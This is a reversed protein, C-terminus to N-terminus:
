SPFGINKGVYTYPKAYLFAWIFFLGSMSYPTKPCPPTSVAFVWGASEERTTEKSLRRPLREFPFSFPIKPM